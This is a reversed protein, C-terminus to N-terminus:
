QTNTTTAAATAATTTAAAATTNISIKQLFPQHVNSYFSFLEALMLFSCCQGLLSYVM